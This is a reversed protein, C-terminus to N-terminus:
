TQTETKDSILMTWFAATLVGFFRLLLLSLFLILFNISLWLRYIFHSLLGTGSILFYSLSLGQFSTVSSFWFFSELVADLGTSHLPFEAMNMKKALIKKM